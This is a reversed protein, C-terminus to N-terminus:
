RDAPLILLADVFMLRPLQLRADVMDPLAEGTRLIAILRHAAKVPPVPLASKFGSVRYNNHQIYSKKSGPRWNPPNSM